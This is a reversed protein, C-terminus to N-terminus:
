FTDRTAILILSVHTRPSAQSFRHFLRTKEETSLGKGTDRVVFYLFVPQGNGWEPSLTLDQISRSDKSPFWEIDPDADPPPKSSSAGLKVSIERVKERRTFKIANTLLNIFIQTLRVPDCFVM